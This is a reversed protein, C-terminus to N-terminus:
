VDPWVEVAVPAQPAPMPSSNFSPGGWSGYLVTMCPTVPKQKWSLPVAIGDVVMRTAKGVVSSLSLAGKSATVVGPWCVTSNVSVACPDHTVVGVTKSGVITVSRCNWIGEEVVAGTGHSKQM